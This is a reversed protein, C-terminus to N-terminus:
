NWLGDLEENPSTQEALVDAPNLEAKTQAEEQYSDAIANLEDIEDQLIAMAKGSEGVDVGEVSAEMTALEADLKSLDRASELEKVRTEMKALELTMAEKKELVREAVARMRDIASKKESAVKEKAQVDALWQDLLPYAECATISKGNFQFTLNGQEETLSDRESPKPLGASKMAASLKRMAEKTKDALAREREWSLELKRAEVRYSRAKEDLGAINARLDAIAKDVRASATAREVQTKIEGAKQSFFGFQWVAIAGVIAVIGIATLANKIM